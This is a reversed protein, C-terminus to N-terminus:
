ENWKKIEYYNTDTYLSKEDATINLDMKSLTFLFHSNYGFLNFFNFLKRALLSIFKPIFIPNYKINNIKCLKKYIDIITTKYNKDGLWYIKNNTQDSNLCQFFAFVINEKLSFNRYNKGDGIIIQFYKTIRGVISSNNIIEKEFFVFGRLITFLILEKEAKKIIYDELLKKSNGYPGYAKYNQGAVFKKNIEDYGLVSDSSMFFIKKIKKIILLNIFKKSDYFNRKYIKTSSTNYIDSALHFVYSAKKLALLTHTNNGISGYQIEFEKPLNILNIFKKEVILNCYIKDKNRNNYNIIFEIFKNGLKGPFGTILLRNNINIKKIDIKYNPFNAQKGILTLNFKQKRYLNIITKLIQNKNSVNYSLYKKAKSSSLWLYSTIAAKSNDIQNNISKLKQFFFSLFFVTLNIYNIFINPIKIIIKFTNIKKKLLSFIENYTFNAGGLIIQSSKKDKLSKFIAETINGVTNISFGGNFCLLIKKYFFHQLFFNAPPTLYIDDESIIWGPYFRTIILNKNKFQLFDIFKDSIIKEKVYDNEFYNIESKENINKKNKNRKFIVSSSIHIIKTIKTGVASNFINKTLNFNESFLKNKFYYPNTSATNILIDQNSIEKRLQFRNKFNVKILKAGLSVLDYTYINEKRALIKVITKKDNLIKKALHYGLHGSAGIIVIKNYSM